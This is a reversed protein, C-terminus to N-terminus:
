PPTKSRSGYVASTKVKLSFFTTEGSHCMIKRRAMPALQSTQRAQKRAMIALSSKLLTTAIQHGVKANAQKPNSWTTAFMNKTGM